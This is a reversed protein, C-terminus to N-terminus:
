RSGDNMGDQGAPGEIEMGDAAPSGEVFKRVEMGVIASVLLGVLLVRTVNRAWGPLRRLVPLEPLWALLPSAFLVIAHASSLEGFFRGIVVLAYLGVIAVGLPRTGRSSWRLALTVVVAGSVAGALALGTQGGSMYGSIMVALGAGASSTALCVATSVGPARTSVLGLLAWVVALFAALGGLVLSAQATSWDATGPGAQDSLYSTGHLLVPAVGLALAGRLPWILWRPVRPFVALLEVLLVAPLVLFLLRDRDEVPPWHPLKGLVCCGLLFGAGIGVVWGIDVGATGTKRGRWGSLFLAVASAALAAGIAALITIPDPM